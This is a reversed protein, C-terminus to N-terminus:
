RLLQILWGLNEPVVLRQRDVQDRILKTLWERSTDVKRGDIQLYTQGKSNLLAYEHIRIEIPAHEGKLLVSVFVSRDATNARFDLVTGYRRILKNFQAKVGKAVLGDKATNLARGGPLKQLISSIEM